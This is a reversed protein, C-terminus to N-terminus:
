QRSAPFHMRLMRASDPDGAVAARSLWDRAKERDPAAGIGTLYLLGLLGQAQADGRAAARELWHAARVPDAPTGRGELYMAGLTSMGHRYGLLASLRFLEFATSREGSADLAVATAYSAARIPLLSAVAATGLLLVVVASRLLPRAAKM